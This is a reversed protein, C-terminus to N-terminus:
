KTFAGQFVTIREGNGLQVTITITNGGNAFSELASYLDGMDPATVADMDVSFTYPNLARYIRSAVELNAGDTVKVIEDSVPYNTM